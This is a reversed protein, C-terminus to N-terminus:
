KKPPNKDPSGRKVLNDILQDLKKWRLKGLFDQLSAGDSKIKQWLDKAIYKQITDAVGTKGTKDLAYDYSKKSITEVIKGYISQKLKDEDYRKREVDKFNTVPVLTQFEKWEVTTKEVPKKVVKAAYTVFAKRTQVRKANSESKLGEETINRIERLENNTLRVGDVFKEAVFPWIVSFSYKKINGFKRSIADYIKQRAQKENLKFKNNNQNNPNSPDDPSKTEAASIYFFVSFLLVSPLLINFLFIKPLSKSKSM